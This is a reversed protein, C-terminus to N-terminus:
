KLLIFKNRISSCKQRDQEGFMIDPEKLVKIDLGITISCARHVELLKNQSHDLKEGRIQVTYTLCKHKSCASNLIEAEKLPGSLDKLM